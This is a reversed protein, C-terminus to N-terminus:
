HRGDGRKGYRSATKYIMWGYAAWITLGIGSGIIIGEFM